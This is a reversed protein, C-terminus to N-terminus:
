KHEKIWQECMERFEESLNAPVDIVVKKTVLTDKKFLEEIEAKTMNKKLEALRTDNIQDAFENYMWQQMDKDYFTLRLISKKKLGGNYYMEQFPEIIKEHISIVEYIATKKLGFDQALKDIREGKSYRRKKYIEFRNRMIQIKTREPLKSFDRYLNTDDIIEKAKTEDLEDIDYIICPLKKFKDLDFNAEDECEEIIEACIAHRNHGSLIIYSDKSKRWLVLPTEVGKDFISMKLELYKEPQNNKLLPYRNWDTPATEMQSIDIYEINKKDINFVNNTTPNELKEAVNKAANRSNANLKTFFDKNNVNGKKGSM